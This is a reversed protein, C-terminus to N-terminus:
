GGNLERLLKSARDEAIIRKGQAILDRAARHDRVPVPITLPWRGRNDRERPYPPTPPNRRHTVGASPVPVPVFVVNVAQM